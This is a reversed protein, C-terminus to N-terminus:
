SGTASSGPSKFRWGELHWPKRGAGGLRVQHLAVPGGTYWAPRGPELVEQQHGRPSLWPWTVVRPRVQALCVKGRAEDCVRPPFAPGSRLVDPTPPSVVHGCQVWCEAHWAPRPAMHSIPVWPSCRSISRVQRSLELLREEEAECWAQESTSLFEPLGELSSM